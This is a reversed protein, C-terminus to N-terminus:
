FHFIQVKAKSWLSVEERGNDAGTPVAGVTKRIAYPIVARGRRYRHGARRSGPIGQHRTDERRNRHPYGKNVGTRRPLGEGRPWQSARQVQTNEKSGIGNSRRVCDMGGCIELSEQGKGVFKAGAERVLNSAM